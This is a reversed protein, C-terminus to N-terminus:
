RGMAKFHDQLEIRELERGASVALNLATVFAKIDGRRLREAVASAGAAAEATAWGSESLGRLWWEVAEVAATFRDGAGGGDGAGAEPVLEGGRAKVRVGCVGGVGGPGAQVAAKGKGVGGDRGPVRRGQRAM